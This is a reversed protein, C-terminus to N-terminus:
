IYYATDALEQRGIWEEGLVEGQCDGTKERHCHNQKLKVPETIDYKLNWMYTIDYPTQKEWKSKTWKTHYDRTTHFICYAANDNKHSFLIRCRRWGNM